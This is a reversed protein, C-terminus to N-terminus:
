KKEPSEKPVPGVESVVKMRKMHALGEDRLDPRVRGSADSHERRMKQLMLTRLKQEKELDEPANRSTERSPRAPKSVQSTPNQGFSVSCLVLVAAPISLSKL